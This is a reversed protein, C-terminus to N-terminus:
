RAIEVNVRRAGAPPNPFGSLAADLMAPWIVRGDAWIGSHRARTEYVVANSRSDRMIVSVERMYLPPESRMIPFSLGVFSGATGAGLSVGPGGYWGSGFSGPQQVSVMGVQVILLAADPKNVM